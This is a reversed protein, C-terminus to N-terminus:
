PVKGGALRCRAESDIKQAESFRAVEGQHALSHKVNFTQALKPESTKYLVTSPYALALRQALQCRSTQM